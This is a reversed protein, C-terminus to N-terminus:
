GRFLKFFDDIAEDVPKEGDLARLFASGVIVGNVYPKAQLADEESRIGFGLMVPNKLSSEKLRKLYSLRKEDFELSEGTTADSSVAYLFGSSVSDIYAIREDTSHQTVLNIFALGKEDFLSKSEREFEEPPYDPLIAGDIGADRCSDVFAEIGYQLVPNWCGMFIIPTEVEKRLAKVQEFYKQFNMGNHLSYENCSQITPGEVLSDSFPFGIEFLDVGSESLKKGITVTDELHPYGATFFISLIGSSKSEFLKKLRESM